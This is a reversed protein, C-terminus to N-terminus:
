SDREPALPGGGLRKREMALYLNFAVVDKDPRIKVARSYDDIAEDWHALGFHGNARNNFAQWMMPKLRIATTCKNIAQRYLKLALDAACLNNYAVALDRVHLDQKMAERTLEIGRSIRGRDIM